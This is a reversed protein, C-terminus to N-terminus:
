IIKIKVKLISFLKQIKLIEQPGQIQLNLDLNNKLKIKKVQALILLILFILKM